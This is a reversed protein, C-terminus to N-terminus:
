YPFKTKIEAVKEDREAILENIKEVIEPTQEMDRLRQIHSTIPDIQVCYAAARSKRLQEVTPTPPEPLEKIEYINEGIVDMYANNENCWNASEIPYIGNFIQGIYFENNM